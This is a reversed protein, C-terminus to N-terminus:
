RSRREVCKLIAEAKSATSCSVGEDYRDQAYFEVQEELPQQDIERLKVLRKAAQDDRARCRDEVAQQCSEYPDASQDCGLLLAAAIVAARVLPPLCRCIMRARM